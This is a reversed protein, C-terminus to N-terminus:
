NGKYSSDFTVKRGKLGLQSFAEETADKARERREQAAQEERQQMLNRKIREAEQMLLSRDTRWHTERLTVMTDVFARDLPIVPGGGRRMKFQTVVKGGPLKTYVFFCDWILSWALLLGHRALIPEYRSVDGFQGGHPVGIHDTTVLRLGPNSIFSM